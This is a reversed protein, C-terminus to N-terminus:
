HRRILRVGHATNLVVFERRLEALFEGVTQGRQWRELPVPLLPLPATIIPAAQASM